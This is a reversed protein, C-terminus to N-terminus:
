IRNGTTVVYEFPGVCAFGGVNLKGLLCPQPRVRGVIHIHPMGHCMYTRGYKCTGVCHELQDLGLQM